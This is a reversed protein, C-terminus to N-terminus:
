AQFNFNISRRGAGNARASVGCIGAWIIMAIGRHAWSTRVVAVPTMDSNPSEEVIEMVSPSALCPADIGIGQDWQLRLRHPHCFLPDFLVVVILLLTVGELPHLNEDVRM